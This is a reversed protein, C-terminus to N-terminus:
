HVVIPLRIALWLLCVTRPPGLGALTPRCLLSTAGRFPYSRGIHWNLLLMQKSSVKDSKESMEKSYKHPIYKVYVDKFEAFADFYDSLIRLVLVTYNLGQQRQDVVSPLFVINPIDHIDAKPGKSSLHNGSVRNEIMVHNVWHIDRNQSTMIMNRRKLHFDINDFAILFRPHCKRQADKLETTAKKLKSSVSEQQHKSQVDQEALITKL